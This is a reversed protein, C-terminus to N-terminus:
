TSSPFNENLFNDNYIMFVKDQVAIFTKVVNANLFM